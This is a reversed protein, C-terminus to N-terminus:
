SQRDTHSIDYHYQLVGTLICFSLTNRYNNSKLNSLERENSIFGCEVMVAPKKSHYLLYIEKGVPKVARKNDPQLMLAISQQITKAASESEPANASYFVQSGSYKKQSFKNQHISILLCNQQSESIELRRKIDSRKKQKVTELNNDGILSDETRTMVTNFGFASLMECLDKSIFLNIDKELTGDDAIAGPDIGGHGADVVVTFRQGVSSMVAKKKSIDVTVVCMYLPVSVVLSAIIIFKVISKM